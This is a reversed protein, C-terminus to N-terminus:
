CLALGCIRTATSLKGPSSWAVKRVSPLTWWFSVPACSRVQTLAEAITRVTGVVELGERELSAQAVALFRENGDVILCRRIVQDADADCRVSGAEERGAAFGPLM